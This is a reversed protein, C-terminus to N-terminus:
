KGRVELLHPSQEMVILLLNDVYEKLRSALNREERLSKMIEDKSQENMEAELSEPDKGEDPSEMLKKGQKVLQASLDSNRTNMRAIEKNLRAVEEELHQTAMTSQEAASRTKQNKMKLEECEKHRQEGRQTVEELQAQLHEITASAGETERRQQAVLHSHETNKKNLTKKLSEIEDSRADFDKKVEKCQDRLTSELAKLQRAEDQAASLQAKMSSIQGNFKNETHALKLKNKDQANRIAAHHSDEKERLQEELHHLRSQMATYDQKLKRQSNDSSDREEGVAALQESLDHIKDAMQRVQLEHLEDQLEASQISTASLSHRMRISNNANLSMSSLMNVKRPSTMRFPAPSVTGSMVDDDEGEGVFSEGQGVFEETLSNLTTHSAEHDPHLSSGNEDTEEGNLVPEPSSPLEPPPGGDDEGDDVCDTEEVGTGSALSNRSSFQPILARFTEYICEVDIYGEGNPDLQQTVEAAQEESVGMQECILRSFDEQHIRGEDDTLGDVLSRLPGDDYASSM